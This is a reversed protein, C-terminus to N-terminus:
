PRCMQLFGTSPNVRLAYHHAADCVEDGTNAIKFSGSVTVMGDSGAAVASVSGSVIRDGSAAIGTLGSGDGVFNTASVTGYVDLKANPSTTGIGVNGNNAALYSDGNGAIYANATVSNNGKLVYLGVTGSTNTTRFFRVMAGDIATPPNTSIDLISSNDTGDFARLAAYTADGQLWLQSSGSLKIVLTHTPSTTGIGVFGTAPDVYPAYTPCGIDSVRL